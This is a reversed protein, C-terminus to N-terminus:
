SRDYPFWSEMSQLLQTRVTEADVGQAALTSLTAAGHRKSLREGDDGYMLPVHMYQPTEYGLLRQLAIQTPTIEALDDGRVVETVGQVADDVVVAINYSPVGDNRRLVVDDVPGSIRGLIVDNFEISVGGFGAAHANLRLAGPRERGREAQERATLNRCTGPYVVLGDHPAAAAERIEKRTCFCPYTLGQGSLRAIEHHYLEFRDSQFVPVGDSVVGIASLDELQSDALQPSSTVRDLDEFRVLFVGDQGSRKASFYAALATRLNGLHLEGTPSPAFRGVNM